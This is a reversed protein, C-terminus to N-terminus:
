KTGRLEFVDVAQTKGKVTVRGVPRLVFEDGVAAAVAGSVLITTGYQKNLAELRAALNVGDGLATYSFREPAGFHGVMVDGTHIGFRTHLPPLGRWEASACLADAAAVCALAARCARAAHDAVAAPANWMVMLADGIYKDVTGGHATVAATMVEFYRGLLTALREPPLPEAFTTFDKIDTFMLTVRRLEGGLAPEVNDAYLRRVLDIPTYKGLARMATKARELGALVAEVDAFAAATASPALEFRRM